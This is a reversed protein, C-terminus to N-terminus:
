KAEFLGVMVAYIMKARESEDKEQLLTSLMWNTWPNWNNVPKVRSMWGYKDSDKMMLNFVRVATEHYTRARVLKNLADLQDGVFYDALALVAATEASFLDVTPHQVDPLGTSAIHAPVGWYSEKCISWIGNLIAEMFRGKGEISEAVVLEMLADRKGFSVTSHRERDGSRVFDLLFSASIPEFKYDILSEGKGILKQLISDPVIAKWAAPTRPYPQWSNKKVLSHNIAEESYRNALINRQTVQAPSGLSALLCGLIIIIRM